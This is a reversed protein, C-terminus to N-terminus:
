AEIELFGCGYSKKLFVNNYQIKKFNELNTIKVKLVVDILNFLRFIQNTKSSVHILKDLAETKSFVSENFIIEFGYKECQKNLMNEVEKKNLPDAEYSGLLKGYKNLIPFQKDEKKLKLCVRGKLYYLDNEQYEKEELQETSILFCFSKLLEKKFEKGDFDNKNIFHNKEDFYTLTLSEGNKLNLESLTILYIFNGEFKIKYNEKLGLKSVLSHVTNRNTITSNLFKYLYM